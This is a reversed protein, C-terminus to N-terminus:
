EGVEGSSTVVFFHRGGRLFRGLCSGGLLLNNSSMRREDGHDRHTDRRGGERGGKTHNEWTESHCRSGKWSSGIWTTAGVHHRPTTGMTHGSQPRGWQRKTDAEGGARKM